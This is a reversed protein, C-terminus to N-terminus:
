PRACCHSVNCPNYWLAYKPLIFGSLNSWTLSAPPCEMKRYGHGFSASCHPLFWCWGACEKKCLLIELMLCCQRLCTVLISAAVAILAAEIFYRKSFFHRQLTGLYIASGANLGIFACLVTEQLNPFIKNFFRAASKMM